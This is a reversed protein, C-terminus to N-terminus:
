AEAQTNRLLQKELSSYDSQSYNRQPFNQFQNKTKKNNSGTATSKKKRKYADDCKEIDSLSIVNKSHWDELIRSVYHLNTDRTQIVTRRCAENIICDAFQYHEWTKIIEREAPALNRQIGLARSVTAYIGSFAAAEEEAQAPTTIGKKAWEIGIAEIYSPQSKGKNLATSYLTVLLEPSFGIDCMFYLILDLHKPSVPAGLLNEVSTIAHNIEVDKTLAEAQLPTYSHKEPLLVEEVTTAIPITAAVPSTKQEQSAGPELLIVDTIEGNNERIDILGEKHWYRLARLIDNETCDMLDALLGVTIERVDPEQCSMSLYIYVKVFNGNAAPMYDRIFVNSLHTVDLKKNTSIMFGM